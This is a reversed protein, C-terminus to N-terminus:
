GVCWWRRRWVWTNASALTRWWRSAGIAPALCPTHTARGIPRHALPPQSWGSAAPQRRGAEMASGWQLGDGCVAVIEDVGHVALVSEHHDERSQGAIESIIVEQGDM